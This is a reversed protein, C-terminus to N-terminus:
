PAVADSATAPEETPLTCGKTAEDESLAECAPGAMSRDGKLRLEPDFVAEGDVCVNYTYAEGASRCDENLKCRLTAKQNNGPLSVATCGQLLPYYKGDRRSKFAGVTVTRYEGGCALNILTWAVSGAHHPPLDLESAAVDCPQGVFVIYGSSSPRPKRKGGPPAACSMLLASGALVALIQKM